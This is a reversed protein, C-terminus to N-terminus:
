KVAKEFVALIAAATKEWSFAENRILGKTILEKRQDANTILLKMKNAMEVEDLPNFSLAANGAVELLCSNNAVLVPTQQQFAELVPIGFGENLSPFVYMLAHQYCLQLDIDSLYGPMIVKKQLNNESILKEILLSDDLTKKKSFQGVLLLRIDEYGEDQLLKFAKILRPINKRKEFTGVHLIYPMKFIEKLIPNEPPTHINETLPFSKAAEYVPIIKSKDIKSYFAIKERTYQTPTIISHSKKAAAVGLKKFIWLWYKNYHEPYEWFFADHFTPITSFGFHLYPVFFDSCFVIDCKKIRAKVPLSVQKWIFYRLHEIIKLFSNKGTYAPMQSTFFYFQFGAHEKKFETCLSELFTKTGTAAIQLDRTDIGIVLTKKKESM